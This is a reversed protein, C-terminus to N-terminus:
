RLTMKMYTSLVKISYASNTRKAYPGQNYATLAATNSKSKAVYKFYKASITLNTHPNNSLVSKINEGALKKALTTDNMLVQKAAIIKVQGVGYSNTGTTHQGAKSETWIISAFLKPDIGESIAIEYAMNLINQQGNSLNQGPISFTLKSSQAFSDTQNFCLLSFVALAACGLKSNRTTM